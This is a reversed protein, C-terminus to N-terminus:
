VVELAQGLGAMSMDLVAEIIVPATKWTSIKQWAHCSADVAVPCKKRAQSVVVSSKRM